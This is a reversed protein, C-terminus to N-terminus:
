FFGSNMPLEPDIVSKIAFSTSAVTVGYVANLPSEIQKHTGSFDVLVEDGLFKVSVNINLLKNNFEIYDVASSEFNPIQNIKSRLYRETYNLCESWAALVNEVSYKEILELIRKEGVNLSAIQAKLDGITYRPVRVNSSILKLLDKNINGRIMLKCPPIILGEQTIDRSDISLSGPSLGGIDVHHAKNAVYCIIEEGHFIPKLLMIDNLHTGAIYPDNVIIVDGRKLEVGEDRLYKITEKVGIAMSGLHVPIHEAQAIIDGNYTLVACSCDMRDRINPSYATNGLIIGMEEAIFETSNRIVEFTIKDM